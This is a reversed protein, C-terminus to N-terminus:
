GKENLDEQLDRLCSIVREISDPNDPDFVYSESPPLWTDLVGGM